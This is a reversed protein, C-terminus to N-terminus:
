CLRVACKHGCVLGLQRFGYPLFINKKIFTLSCNKACKKNSWRIKKENPITWWFIYGFLFSFTIIHSFPVYFKWNLIALVWIFVFCFSFYYSVVCFILSSGFFVHICLFSYLASLTHQIFTTVVIVMITCLCYKTQSVKTSRAM